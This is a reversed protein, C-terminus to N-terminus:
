PLITQTVAVMMIPSFPASIIRSSARRPGDVAVGM